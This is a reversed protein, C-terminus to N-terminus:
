RTVLSAGTLRSATVPTSVLSYSKLVAMTNAHADKVLKVSLSSRVQGPLCITTSVDAHLYDYAAIVTDAAETVVATCSPLVTVTVNAPFSFQCGDHVMLSFRYVGPKTVLYSAVSSYNM